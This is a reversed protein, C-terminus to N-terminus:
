ILVRGSDHGVGESLLSQYWLLIRRREGCLPSAVNRDRSFFTSVAENCAVPIDRGRQQADDQLGYPARGAGRRVGTGESATRNVADKLFDSMFHAAFWDAAVKNKLEEELLKPDYKAM